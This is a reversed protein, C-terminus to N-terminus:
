LAEVAEVLPALTSSWTVTAALREQEPTRPRRPTDFAAIIGRQFDERTDAVTVNPFDAFWEFGGRLAFSSCVVRTDALIAEATKLNSGGGSTIPLLLVDAAEILGQLSTESLRGANVARLWFTAAEVDTRPNGVFAEMSEGISGAFVIRENEGLFGLGRGVLEDFGVINPMHGSGIFAAIREGGARRARAKWAATARRTAQAPEMGNSAVIAHTAGMERHAALDEDTCSALLDCEVSFRRELADIEDVYEAIQSEPTGISRLGAERLPAELNASGFVIKPNMGLDDLLPRLGIYSFPHEVHIVEPRFSRLLATFRSRVEANEAIAHGSILDATMPREHALNALARPLAIDSRSAHRYEDRNFVAVYKVDGFRERYADVIARIRKQGGHQPRTIPFTSTVLVRRRGTM